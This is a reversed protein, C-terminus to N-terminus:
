LDIGLSKGIAKWRADDSELADLTRNLICGTARRPRLVADSNELIQFIM